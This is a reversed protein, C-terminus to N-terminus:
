LLRRSAVPGHPPRESISRRAARRRNVFVFLKPEGASDSGAEAVFEQAREIGLQLLSADRRPLFAALLKEIDACSLLPCQDKMRLRETVVTPKVKKVVSIGAKFCPLRERQPRNHSRTELDVRNVRKHKKINTM